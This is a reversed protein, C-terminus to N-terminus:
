GKKIRLKANNLFDTGILMAHQLLVYPIIHFTMSFNCGDIRVDVHTEGLTVNESSGVGRFKIQRKVLTPAGIKVYSDTCMLSIDSGTDILASLKISNIAVTK